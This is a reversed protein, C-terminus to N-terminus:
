CHLEDDVDQVRMQYVLVKIYGWPFFHLPSFDPPRPPWTIPGQRGIWKGPFHMKMTDTYNCKKLMNLYSASKKHIKVERFKASTGTLWVMSV